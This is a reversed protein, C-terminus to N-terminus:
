PPFPNSSSIRRIELRRYHYFQNRRLEL